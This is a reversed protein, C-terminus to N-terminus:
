RRASESEAEAFTDVMAVDDTGSDAVVVPTFALEFNALRGSSSNAFMATLSPESSRPDKRSVQLGMSARTNYSNAFSYILLM